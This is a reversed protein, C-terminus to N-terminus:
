YYEIDRPDGIIFLAPKGDKETHLSKLRDNVQTVWREYGINKMAFVKRAKGNFQVVDGTGHREWAAGLDFDEPNSWMDNAFWFAGTHDAYLVDYLLGDIDTACSVRFISHETLSNSIHFKM